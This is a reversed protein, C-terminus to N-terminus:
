SEAKNGARPEDGGAGEPEEGRDVREQDEAAAKGFQQDAPYPDKEDRDDGTQQQDSM